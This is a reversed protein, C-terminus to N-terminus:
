ANLSEVRIELGPRLEKEYLDFVQHVRMGAKEYLRTAGTLSSADVGLGARRLGRRHFEGFSHLLLALGLGRNRWPRRVGLTGVWGLETDELSCPPCLSIGAIQDGDMALFFLSPDFGQYGTNFHKFRELGEAYPEEVFGFHDRFSDVEAQYVAEMDTEPNFLRLTLGEPWVPAPPPTEMEIRMTYSSRQYAYGLDEFLQLANRAARYCGVRPAFRLDAPLDNLALCARAEAWRMMWTGIGLDQFDPDVRGWLWPHVPPKVIKWIEIYGAMRGDPAFVLRIDGAPDFGPTRWENLIPQSLRVEDYHLVSQSWRNYLAVAPDLDAEVAGRSTFGRPLAPTVLQEPNKIM